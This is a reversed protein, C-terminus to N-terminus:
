SYVFLYLYEATQLPTFTSEIPSDFQKVENVYRLNGDEPDHATPESWTHNAYTELEAAYIVVGSSPCSTFSPPRDTEVLFEHLYYYYAIVSM